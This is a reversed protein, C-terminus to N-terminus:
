PFYRHIWIIVTYIIVAAIRIAELAHSSFSVHPTTRASEDPSARASKEEGLSGALWDPSRTASKHGACSKRKTARAQRNWCKMKLRSAM